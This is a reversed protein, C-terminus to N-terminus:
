APINWQMCYPIPHGSLVVSANVSSPEVDAVINELLSVISFDDCLQGTETRKM